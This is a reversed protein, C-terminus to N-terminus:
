AAAPPNARTLDKSSLPKGVRDATSAPAVDIMSAPRSGFIPFTRRPVNNVLSTIGCATPLNITPRGM